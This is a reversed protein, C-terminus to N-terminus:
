RPQRIRRGARAADRQEQHRFKQEVGFTRRSLAVVHARMRDLVLEADVARGGAGHHEAITAASGAKQDAFLIGTHGAHEGHHVARSERDAQLADADGLAGGLLRGSIRAFPFLAAHGAHRRFLRRRDNRMRVDLAHQDGHACERLSRAADAVGGRKREITGFAPGVLRRAFRPM